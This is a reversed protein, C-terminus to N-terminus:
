PQVEIGLEGLFEHAQKILSARRRPTEREWADCDSLSWHAEVAREVDGETITPRLPTVDAVEHDWWTQVGVQWAPRTGSAGTAVRQGVLTQGTSRYTVHAVTGLPIPPADSLWAPLQEPTSM